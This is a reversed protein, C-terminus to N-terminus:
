KKNEIDFKRTKLVPDIVEIAIKEIVVRHKVEKSDRVPISMNRGVIVVPTGVKIEKSIIEAFTDYAVFHIIDSYRNTSNVQ